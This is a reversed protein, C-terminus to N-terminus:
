PATQTDRSQNAPAGNVQKREAATHLIDDIIASVQRDEVEALGSLLEFMRQRYDGYEESDPVFQYLPEEGAPNTPEQFILFGPRDPPMPKWNRNELYAVVDAVRLSRYRLDIWRRFPYNPDECRRHYRPLTM